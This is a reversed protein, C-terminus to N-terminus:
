CLTIAECVKLPDAFQILLEILYIGYNNILAQCEKQSSAPAIKCVEDLAHIMAQETSNKKLEMDLFQLAYQCMTCFLPNGQASMFSLDVIEM